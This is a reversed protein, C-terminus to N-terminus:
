LSKKIERYPLIDCFFYRNNKCLPTLYYINKYQSTEITVDHCIYYNKKSNSQFYPKCDKSEPYFYCMIRYDFKIELIQFQFFLFKIKPYKDKMYEIFSNHNNYNKYKKIFFYINCRNLILRIDKTIFKLRTFVSELIEYHCDYNNNILINM